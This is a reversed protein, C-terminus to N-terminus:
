DVFNTKDFGDLKAVSKLSNSITIVADGNVKPTDATHYLGIEKAFTGGTINMAINGNFQAVTGTVNSGTRHIGYVGGTFSGGSINFVVNGDCGNMGVASTANVGDYTFEGGSISINLTVGKDVTGIPTASATRM